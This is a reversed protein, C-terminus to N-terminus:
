SVTPLCTSHMHLHLSSITPLCRCHGQLRLLYKIHLDGSFFMDIGIIYEHYQLCDHLIGKCICHIYPLCVHLIGRYFFSFKMRLCGSFGHLHLYYVWSVTGLCASHVQLRLTYKTPLMYFAGTFEVFIEHVFMRFVWTFSFLISMISYAFMNVARTEVSPKQSVTPTYWM